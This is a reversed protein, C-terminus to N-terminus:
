IELLFSQPHSLNTFMCKRGQFNGAIIINYIVYLNAEIDLGLWVELPDCLTSYMFQMQLLAIYWVCYIWLFCNLFQWIINYPNKEVVAPNYGSPSISRELRLKIKIHNKFGCYHKLILNKVM